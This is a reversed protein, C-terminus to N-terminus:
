RMMFYLPYDQKNKLFIIKTKLIKNQTIQDRLNILKSKKLLSSISFIHILILFVDFM